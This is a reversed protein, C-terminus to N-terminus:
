RSQFLHCHDEGFCYLNYIDKVMKDKLNEGSKREVLPGLQNSGTRRKIVTYMMDRVYRLETVDCSESLHCIFDVRAKGYLENYIKYMTLTSRQLVLFRDDLIVSSTNVGTSTFSAIPVDGESTSNGAMGAVLNLIAYGVGVHDIRCDTLKIRCNCVM